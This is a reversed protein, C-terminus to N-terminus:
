VVTLQGSMVQAMTTVLQDRQVPKPVFADMGAEDCAAMDERMARATLAVVPLRRGGEAAERARIARTAELGDMVPMQVDMLVLDVDGAASREVAARGNDVIIVDHGLRQLLLKIVKQNVPNDEAVLVVWRERRDDIETDQEEVAANSAAMTFVTEFFFTSGEGECSKVELQGGMLSVLSASISLGLGTGGYERTTTGDAQRFAEFIIKQKDNSIGIGTDIVSFRLRVYGDSVGAPPVEVLLTVSGENTFKIANGLLNILVQQLRVPDGVLNDPCEESVELSLDLQKDEAKVQLLNITRELSQRMGFPLSELELRGADIKSFDLIDNILALLARASTYVTTLCERQDDNLDTELTLETMGMIANMPTRIEHSMNALFEGRSKTASEALEKAIQLEHTRVQVQEELDRERFRRWRERQALWGVLGLVTVLVVLLWLWVTQYFFPLLRFELTAEAQGTRGTHDTVQVRFRYSGPPINTYIAQRRTGAYIWDQDYGELMYRFRIEEAANLAIATYTLVLDGRGPSVEAPRDVPYPDGGLVAEQILVPPAIPRPSVLRPDVMAAGGATAFWFRGHYDATVAPTFGGNCESDKLGDARGYLRCPIFAEEGNKYQEFSDRHFTFVGSNSAVWFRGNHDELLGFAADDILGAQLGFVVGKGDRYRVLGAGIGGFWIDGRADRTTFLILGHPVGHAPGLSTVRGDRIINMGSDTGVLLGGDDMELLGGRVVDSLLGDDTTYQQVRSDSLKFVGQTRTGFWLDGRSDELISRIGGYALNEPLDVPEFRGDETRVSLGETAGVWLRGRSDQMLAGINGPPLGDDVSYYTSRGDQLHDLGQRHSSIWMSGDRSVCVVWVSDSSLGEQSSWTIFPGARFRQLGSSFTGVWLTGHGDEYLSIADIVEDGTQVQELVGDFLRFLGRNEAAIWIVGQSDEMMSWILGGPYPDGRLPVPQLTHGDSRWLGSASAVWMSGDRGRALGLIGEPTLWPGPEFLRYGEAELVALGGRAGVWLRGQDDVALARIESGLVSNQEDVLLFQDDQLEALGSTSGAFVRGEKLVHLRHMMAGPAKVGRDWTAMVGDHLLAVGNSGAIWLSDGHAFVAEAHKHVYPPTSMPDFVTLDLGDFRVLGQQTAIWLYGDPTQDISSVIDLPLGHEKTWQDHVFQSFLREAPLGFASVSMLLVIAICALRVSSQMARDM